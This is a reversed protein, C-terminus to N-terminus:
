KGSPLPLAAGFAKFETNQQQTCTWQIEKELPLVKGAYTHFKIRIILNETVSKGNAKVSHGYYFVTVVSGLPVDGPYIGRTRGDKMPAVCYPDFRGTFLEEKTGHKYKLTLVDLAPMRARPSEIVEGTFTAGQYSPPYYGAPAMGQQAVAVLAKAAVLVLIIFRVLKMTPSKM